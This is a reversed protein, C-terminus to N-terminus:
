VRNISPTVKCVSPTAVELLENELSALSNLDLTSVTALVMQVNGPFRQLFLERLLNEATTATKGSMLQRMHCLLHSPRLDGLKKASLVQVIRSRKSATTGELLTAKLTSYSTTSPLGSLLDSVEKAAAPSLASVVLHYERQETRVGCLM